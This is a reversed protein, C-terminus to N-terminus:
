ILVANVAMKSGMRVPLFKASIIAASKAGVILRMHAIQVMAFIANQHDVVIWALRTAM